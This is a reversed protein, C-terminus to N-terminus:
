ISNKVMSNETTTISNNKELMRKSFISKNENIKKIKMSKM